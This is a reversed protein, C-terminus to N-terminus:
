DKFLGKYDAGLLSIGGGLITSLLVLRNLNSVKDLWEFMLIRDFILSCVEFM